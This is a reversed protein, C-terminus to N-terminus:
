KSLALLYTSSVAEIFCCAPLSVTWRQPSHELQLAFVCHTQRQIRQADGNRQQDIGVVRANVRTEFLKSIAIATSRLWQM